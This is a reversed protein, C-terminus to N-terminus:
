NADVYGNGKASYERERPRYFEALKTVFEDIFVRMKTKTKKIRSVLANYGFMAPIAVVLGAATAVLAASIGPAIANVNVDGAAAIAAFTIMVGIVTGLLGIFPGGSIAVKMYVLDADLTECEQEYGGELSARIAAISQASLLRDGDDASLRKRIEVAGIHYIRYLSAEHIQDMAAKNIRGGLTRFHEEEELVTLDTGVQHWFETFKVNAAQVVNLYKHKRINVRWSLTGMIALIAIIVWGDVTVSSLIVGVYGMTFMDILWNGHAEVAGVALLKGGSDADTGQNVTTLKLFGVPRAAKSIELEDLQGNFGVGGAADGGILTPSNLAPVGAALSAFPAGDVQLSTASGSATVTIHKWAGPALAAGTPTSRQGNVEVYPIGSDIGILFSNSGEQRSLIIANPQLAAFNIWTSITVADGAAWALSSSPPITIATGSLRVGGGILSAADATAGNSASNGNATSDRPTADAFHYVLSTEPDYLNKADESGTAKANNYYIYLETKAGPKLDPIKVWVYGQNLLSDYKEIHSPLVTKDDAAVFRIDSGDPKAMDFELNGDHLRVLVTATGIPETITSTDIVVKKRSAWDGNWWAQAPLAFFFGAAILLLRLLTPSLKM